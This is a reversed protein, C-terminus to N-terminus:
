NYVRPESAAVVIPDIFDNDLLLKDRLKVYMKDFGQLQYHGRLIDEIALSKNVRPLKYYIAPDLTITLRRKNTDTM